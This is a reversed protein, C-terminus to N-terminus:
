GIHRVGDAKLPPSSPYGPARGHRNLTLYTPVTGLEHRRLFSTCSGVTRSRSSGRWWSLSEYETPYETAASTDPDDEVPGTTRIACDSPGSLFFTPRGITGHHLYTLHHRHPQPHPPTLHFCSTRQLLHRLEVWGTGLVCAHWPRNDSGSVKNGASPYITPCSPPGM